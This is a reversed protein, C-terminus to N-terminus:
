FPRTEPHTFFVCGRITGRIVCPEMRAVGCGLAFSDPTAQISRYRLAPNIHIGMIVAPLDIYQLNM